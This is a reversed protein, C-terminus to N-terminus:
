GSRVATPSTYVSVIQAPTNPVNTIAEQLVRFLSTEVPTHCGGTVWSIELDIHLRSRDAWEELYQTM